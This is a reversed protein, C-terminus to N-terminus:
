PDPSMARRTMTGPASSDSAPVDDYVLALEDIFALLSEM